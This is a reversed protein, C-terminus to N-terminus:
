RLTLDNNLFRRLRSRMWPLLILGLVVGSALGGLHASNDIPLFLGLGLNIALVAGVSKLWEKRLDPRVINSLLVALFIGFLGFIAGSAGASLVGPNFLYSALSGTLGSVLYVLLFATSGLLPEIFRGLVFLSASNFVLHTLSLHLFMSTLFRWWQGQEVFSSYNAGLMLLSQASFQSFNGNVLAVALFMLLNLILLAPTVRFGPQFKVIM